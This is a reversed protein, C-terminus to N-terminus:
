AVVSEDRVALQWLRTYRDKLDDIAEFSRRTDIIHDVIDFNCYWYQGIRCLVVSVHVVSSNGIIMAFIYGM